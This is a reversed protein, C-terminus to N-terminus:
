LALTNAADPRWDIAKGRIRAVQAGDATAAPAIEDVVFDVLQFRKGGNGLEVQALCEEKFRQVAWWDLELGAIPVNSEMEFTVTRAGHTYGTALRDRVMTQVPTSEQTVTVTISSIDRMQRTEGSPRTITIPAIDAYQVTTAM